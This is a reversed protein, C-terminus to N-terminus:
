FLVPRWPHLVTVKLGFGLVISLARMVISILPEPLVPISFASRASSDPM